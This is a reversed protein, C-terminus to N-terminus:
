ACYGDVIKKALKSLNSSSSAFQIFAKRFHRGPFLFWDCRMKFVQLSLKGDLVLVKSDLFKIPGRYKWKIYVLQERVSQSGDLIDYAKCLAFKTILLYAVKAALHPGIPNAPQRNDHLFM